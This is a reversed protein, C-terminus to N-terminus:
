FEDQGPPNILGVLVNISAPAKDGALGFATARLHGELIELPSDRSQGWLIIPEFDYEGRLILETVAWFRDNPVDFVIKGKQINKVGDKVLHTNDTLDNWYSYDVYRLSGIEQRTIEAEYWALDSPVGDFMERDHQYGRYAGLVQARLENENMDTIDPDTIVADRVSFSRM